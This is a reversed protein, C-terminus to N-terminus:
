IRYFLPTSPSSSIAKKIMNMNEKASNYGRDICEIIRKSDKIAVDYIGPRLIYDAGQSKISTIQYAMIDLSQSGIEIINDVDRRLQGNYGLDVGIIKKAGMKKLIEIPLNTTVGGDM